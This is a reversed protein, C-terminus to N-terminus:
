FTSTLLYFNPFCFDSPVFLFSDLIRGAAIEIRKARSKQM